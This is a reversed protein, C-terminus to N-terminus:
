AHVETIGVAAALAQAAGPNDGSLLVVRLGQGHLWAVAAAAGPNATDGFAMVGLAMASFFVGDINLLLVSPTSSM